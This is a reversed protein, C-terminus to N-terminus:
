YIIPLDAEMALQQIQKFGEMNNVLMAMLIIDFKRNKDHLMSLAQTASSCLT